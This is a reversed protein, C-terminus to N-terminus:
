AALHERSCFLRMARTCCQQGETGVGVHLQRIKHWWEGRLNQATKVEGMQQPGLFVTRPIRLEWSKPCSGDM